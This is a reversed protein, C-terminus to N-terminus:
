PRYFDERRILEDDGRTAEVGSSPLKVTPRLLVEWRRLSLYNALREADFEDVGGLESPAPVFGLPRM